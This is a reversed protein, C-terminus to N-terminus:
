KEPARADEDDPYSRDTVNDKEGGGQAQEFLPSGVQVHGDQDLITECAQEFVVRM